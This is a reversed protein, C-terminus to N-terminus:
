LIEGNLSITLPNFNHVFEVQSKQLASHTVQFKLVSNCSSWTEFSCSFTRLSPIVIIFSDNRKKKKKDRTSKTDCKVVAHGDSLSRLM